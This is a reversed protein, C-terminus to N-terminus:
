IQIRNKKEYKFAPQQPHRWALPDVENEDEENEEEIVVNKGFMFGGGDNKSHSHGHGASSKSNELLYKISKYTTDPSEYSTNFYIKGNAVKAYKCIFKKIANQDKAEGISEHIDAILKDFQTLNYKKSSDNILELVADNTKATKTKEKLPTESTYNSTEEKKVTVKVKNVKSPVKPLSEEVKPQAKKVFMSM